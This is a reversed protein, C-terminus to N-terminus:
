ITATSERKQRIQSFSDGNLLNLIHWAPVVVTMGSPISLRDGERIPESSERRVKASENFQASHVGLLKMLRNEDQRYPMRLPTNQSQFFYKSLDGSPTRYVSVPSGSHGGRSRMDVLFSPRCVQNGQEIPALENPLASINGFRGVADGGAHGALLGIMFVDDGMAIQHDAIFQPTVLDSDRLCCLRMVLDPTIHDTLDIIALDDGNAEFQWEDNDVVIEKIIGDLLPIKLHTCCHTIAIHYNTVGYFHANRRSEWPRWVVFGTGHPGVIEGTKMDPGYLFFALKPLDPHLRPM